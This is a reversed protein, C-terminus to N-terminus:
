VLVNGGDIVFTQGTAFRQKMLFLYTQAIDDAHGIRKVPLSNGVSRYFNEREQPPMSDWLNTDVVGPLVVNVRIPALEVAMARCFGEMAGCISAALGWSAGPRQSAIGSTLGISGGQNILPAGYKVAALAGWFRLIFFDRAKTLDTNDITTLRINEAATYILHDFRGIHAFFDRINEERSLDVAYGSNGAPLTTLAQDIRTRNSSVIVVEAGDNAAAKATALGLGSSGGLIIVRKGMLNNTHQATEMYRNNKVM